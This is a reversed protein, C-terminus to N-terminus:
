KKSCCISKLDSIGRSLNNSNLPANQLYIVCAVEEYGHSDRMKDTFEGIVNHLEHLESM